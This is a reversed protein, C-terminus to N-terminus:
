MFEAPSCYRSSGAGQVSTLMALQGPCTSPGDNSSVPLVIFNVIVVLVVFAVSYQSMSVPAIDDILQSQGKIVIRGGVKYM